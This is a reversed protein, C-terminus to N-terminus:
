DSGELHEEIGKVFSPDHVSVVSLRQRGFRVALDEVSYLADELRSPGLAREIKKRLDAGADSALFVVGRGEGELARLVPGSGLSLRGARQALGLLRLVAERTPAPDSM